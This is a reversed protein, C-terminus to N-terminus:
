ENAEQEMRKRLEQRGRSIRSSVTGKPLRLARGIEELSMDEGYFMQLVVSYKEPLAGVYAWIPTETERAEQAANLAESEVPIERKRGRLTRHCANVTIRMLWPRVADWRRLANMHTYANLTAESVADEADAPSRLMTLAVRYMADRHATLAEVFLEDKARKAEM